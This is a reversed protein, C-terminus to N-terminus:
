ECHGPGILGNNYNDLTTSLSSTTSPALFGSGVPPVISGGILADAAAIASAVSSGDAGNAISLKAAILQHALAVLGNGGAPTQLISCLELDTYSVTGITLSTVPWVNINNGTVCGEPGHTKWFGQTYTCNNGPQECPLTSCQLPPTFDSRNLSSNAHAFARFVYATGCQLPDICSASAGNDFLLDGVEVTVSEYPGLNYRSANANGSFSSHCLGPDESSLWVSGNALYEALTMWQLSFGAPAGTAGATFTIQISVKSATGCTLTPTSMKNPKAASVPASMLLTSAPLALFALMGILLRATKPTSRIKM